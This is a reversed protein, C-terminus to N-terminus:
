LIRFKEIRKLVSDYFSKYLKYRNYVVMFAFVLSFFVVGLVMCASKDVSSIYKEGGAYDSEFIIYSVAFALFGCFATAVAYGLITKVRKMM